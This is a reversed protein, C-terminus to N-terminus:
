CQCLIKFARSISNAEKKNHSQSSTNVPKLIEEMTEIHARMGIKELANQYRLGEDASLDKKLVIPKGSFIRDIREPSIKFLQAAHAKVEAKAKGEIIEGRFVIRIKHSM